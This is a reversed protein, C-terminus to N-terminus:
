RHGCHVAQCRTQVSCNKQNIINDEVLLVHPPTNMDDRTRLPLESQQEERNHQQVDSSSVSPQVKSKAKGKGMGEGEAPAKDTVHNSTIHADPKSADDFSQVTKSVESGNYDPEHAPARQQCDSRSQQLIGRDEKKSTNEHDSCDEMNLENGLQECQVSRDQWMNKSHLDQHSQLKYLEESHGVTSGEQSDRGSMRIHGRSSAYQQKKEKDKDDNEPLDFRRVRFFFGFTAGQGEKSTVGIEGGHLQVLKRSINLGLGSGGYVESTKPTAQKFREIKVAVMIFLAEGNGWEPAQTADMQTM